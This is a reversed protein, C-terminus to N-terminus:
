RLNPTHEYNTLYVTGEKLIVSKDSKYFRIVYPYAGSPYYNRNGKVDTKILGRWPASSDHILKKKGPEYVKYNLKVIGCIASYGVLWGQIATDMPCNPCFYSNIEIVCSDEPLAQARTKLMSFLLIVLVIGSCKM